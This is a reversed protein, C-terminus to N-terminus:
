KAQNENALGIRCDVQRFLTLIALRSSTTRLLLAHLPLNYSMLLLKGHLVRPVTDTFRPCAHALIRGPASNFLADPTFKVGLPVERNRM